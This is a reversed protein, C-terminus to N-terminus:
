RVIDSMCTAQYTNRSFLSVKKTIVSNKNKLICQSSIMVQVNSINNKVPYINRGKKGLIFDERYTLSYFYLPHKSM